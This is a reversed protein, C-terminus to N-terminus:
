TEVEVTESPLLVVSINRISYAIRRFDLDTLVPIRLDRLELLAALREKLLEVTKDASLKSM